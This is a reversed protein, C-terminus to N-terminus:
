WTYAKDVWYVLKETEQFRLGIPAGLLVYLVQNNNEPSALERPSGSIFVFTELAEDTYGTKGGTINPLKGLLKNSNNVEHELSGDASKIIIKQTRMVEWILQYKLSQKTIVAMDAASSYNSVDDLGTPNAFSTNSLNLKKVRENMLLVFEQWSGSIHESLAVSADNSSAMMMAYFLAKADIKEGISFAQGGYTNIAIKSMTVVDTLNLKDLVIQATMLKTISGIPFHENENKAYLIKGTELDEILVAKAQVEPDAIGSNRIPGLAQAPPLEFSDKASAVPKEQKVFQTQEVAQKNPINDKNFNKANLIGVVAVILIIIIYKSM